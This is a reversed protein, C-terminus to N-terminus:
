LLSRIHETTPVEYHTLKDMMKSMRSSNHLLVHETLLISNINTIKSIKYEIKNLQKLLFYTDQKIYTVICGLTITTIYIIWRIAFINM